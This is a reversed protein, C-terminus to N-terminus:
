EWVKWLPNTEWLNNLYTADRITDMCQWFDKHKYAMFQGEKALNKLPEGELMCSEDTTLYNFIRKNFAFFGGDIWGEHILHKKKFDSITNNEEIDLLGFRTSPRVSTVTGIKGHSLHFDLLEKINVNSVGDGYTLLFNDGDVYKEIQKIRSGTESKLGTEAFTINWDEMDNEGHRTLINSKPNFTFDKTIKDYNLFFNKIMHGKYGLCLIFDRFGYHSYIKMIHWLIPMGGIEVLPKPKFETEEKLRTGQGGCLIVVKM